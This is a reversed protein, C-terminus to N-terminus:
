NNMLITCIVAFITAVFLYKIERRTTILQWINLSNFLKEFISSLRQKITGHRGKSFNLTDFLVRTFIGQGRRFTQVILSYLSGM